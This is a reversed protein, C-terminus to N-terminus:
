RFADWGADHEGFKPTLGRSTGAAAAAAHVHVSGLVSEHARVSDDASGNWQRGAGRQTGLQALVALDNDAKKAVTRDVATRKVLGDVHTGNPIQRYHVHAFVIKYAVSIAKKRAVLICM